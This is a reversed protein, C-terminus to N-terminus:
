TMTPDGGVETAFIIHTHDSQWGGLNQAAGGLQLWPKSYSPMTTTILQKYCVLQVM